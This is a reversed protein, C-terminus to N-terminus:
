ALEAAPVAQSSPPMSDLFAMYYGNLSAFEISPFGASVLVGGLTTKSKRHRTYPLTEM